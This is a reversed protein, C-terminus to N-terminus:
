KSTLANEIKHSVAYAIVLLTVLAAQQTSALPLKFLVVAAGAATAVDAKDLYPSNFLADLLAKLKANM